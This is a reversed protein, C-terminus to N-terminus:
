IPDLGSLRAIQEMVAELVSVESLNRGRYIAEGFSIRVHTRFRGAQYRVGAPILPFSMRSLILRLMGSKGPGMRHRYYTGEPFIVIGEDDKLVAMMARISRRSKMPQERNLPIGGLSELLWGAWRNTFLEYKAVYYLHRPAALAILPIDQWCQHKPLLIFADTRPLRERGEIEIRYFPSLGFRAFAKLLRCMGDKRRSM